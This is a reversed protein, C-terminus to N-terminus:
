RGAEPSSPPLPRGARELIWRTVRDMVVPSMTEEIAAYEAPAGTTATQFLHNLGPLEEITVDPNGAEALAAEIAALNEAAPVQLDLSGNLALVPVRVERLVPRPDYALFYRFWPGGVQAIQAEIWREAAEPGIGATAREEDTLSALEERLATAMQEARVAADEEDIAIRFLREQIRRNWEVQAPPVGMASSILAAQLYLIEEGPLGPGALLVIFAVDDTRTAVLPAILGGESMGVLGVAERDVEAHERLAEVASAADGAFDLSTAEAFIGESDGVGRDDSRLVAIGHRTLHDALVLFLKHDLIESDRNQAGSGSILAVAPFPGDGEPLTLTGALTIGAEHNRYRIEEERYPFPPQPEQPREPRLVKEVRSLELAFSSGGQSWAGVIRDQGALTGAFGAQLSTLELKLTDGAFSAREVPIGSAGQDPSDMTAELGGEENPAIHFVLTLSMGGPLVLAGQWIGVVQGLPGPATAPPPVQAVAPTTAVLAPALLLAAAVHRALTRRLLPARSRIRPRHPRRGSCTGNVTPEPTMSRM